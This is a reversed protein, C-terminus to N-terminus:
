GPQLGPAVPAEAPWAGDVIPRLALAAPDIVVHRVRERRWTYTVHVLGDRTQIVAPYSFEADDTNELVLAASWNRGDTSLAVNLMGRGKATHNYVLLHRGDALTVADTGASPNPLPLLSLPSWTRGEDTSWTEFIRGARTRGVAQLRGDAHTLISPQIAPIERGDNLPPTLTWTRGGDTSREMHVRWGDHETSSGSLIDGSALEIPKNKVPGIVGDPLREPTSWTRGDDTSTTVMGWWESPSPGVKYFLLLPGSSPQFLVPNWTPYRLSESQVGNAVEVPTTWGNAERRSLWIGVDPNREATGGFWAALLTGERTEVITSAHASPFPATEYIFESSLVGQAGIPLAAAVVVLATAIALARM